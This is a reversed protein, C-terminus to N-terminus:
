CPADHKVTVAEARVDADNDDVVFVLNEPALANFFMGPLKRLAADIVALRRFFRHVALQLFFRTQEGPM